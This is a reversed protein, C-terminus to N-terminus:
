YRSYRRMVWEPTIRRGKEALIQKADRVKMESEGSNCMSSALQKVVTFARLLDGCAIYLRKVGTVLLAVRTKEKGL